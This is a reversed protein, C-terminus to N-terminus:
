ATATLFAQAAKLPTHPDIRAPAAASAAHYADHDGLLAALEEWLAPFGAEVPVARGAPGALTPVYGLDYTILPTGASLAEAATHSFTEPSTSCIVTVAAEAFFSPVRAWPLAPLLRVVDPRRQQQRRCAALAEEAEGRVFEFDARALVLEVPRRWTDPLAELLEPHGKDAVARSVTRLPGHCRLREREDYGVPDPRVLVANPVVRWASSDWGARTAAEVLYPSAPLVVDAAQLALRWTDASRPRIENHAMLATRVGPPAPDLYGLGWVPAGWCAIDVARDALIARVEAVVPGPDALAALVDDNHAPQPLRVSTLRILDPDESAEADASPGSAAPSSTLILVTHGLQRLGITLAAISREIGSPHDPRYTLLCFAITTM